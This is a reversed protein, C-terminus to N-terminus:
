GRREMKKIKFMMQSVQVILLELEEEMTEIRWYLKGLSGYKIPDIGVNPVYFPILASLVKLYLHKLTLLIKKLYFRLKPNM